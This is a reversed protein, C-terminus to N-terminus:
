SRRASHAQRQERLACVLFSDLLPQSPYVQPCLRFPRLRNRRAITVRGHSRHPFVRAPLYRHKAGISNKLSLPMQGTVIHWRIQGTNMQTDICSITPRLWASSAFTVAILLCLWKRQGWDHLMSCNCSCQSRNWDARSRGSGSNRGSGAGYRRTLCPRTPAAVRARVASAGTLATWVRLASLTARRISIFNRGSGPSGDRM